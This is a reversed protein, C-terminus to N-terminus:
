LAAPNTEESRQIIELEELVLGIVPDATENGPQLGATPPDKCPKAPHKLGAPSIVHFKFRAQIGHLTHDLRHIQRVAIDNEM